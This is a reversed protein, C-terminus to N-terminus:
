QVPAYTCSDGDSEYEVYTGGSAICEDRFTDSEAASGGCGALALCALLTVILRKM